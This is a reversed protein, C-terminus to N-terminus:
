NPKVSRVVQLGRILAKKGKLASNSNVIIEHVGYINGLCFDFFVVNM